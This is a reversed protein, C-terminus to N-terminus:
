KKEIVSIHSGKSRAQVEKDYMSEGFAPPVQYKGKNTAKMRYVFEKVSGEAVGFIVVRDERVDIYDPMFTSGSSGGRVSELVVEFGGPLLDVIAINSLHSSDTSRIKIHVLLEEGLAAENVVEGEENRFEHQVELRKKLVEPPLNKDFGSEVVQYFLNYKTKGEFSIKEAEASFPGRVFLGNTSELKRKNGDKLVEFIGLEVVDTESAVKAYTSLGLITYASSITNHQGKIIRDVLTLLKDGDIKKAVDPFHRSVLDIYKADSILSDFFYEYRKGREKGLEYHYVLKNAMGDKQLLKYTAALYVAMIDSKWKEKHNNDLYDTLSSIYNTTVEGNRTLIYIAYAMVRAEEFSAPTKRLSDKLFLLTGKLMDKPVPIGKERSETLFHAAYISLFNNSDGGTPWYRFGGGPNQRGRILDVTQKVYKNISKNDNFGFEPRGKLAIAPFGKSILQETCGYPFKNLYHLLGKSISLPLPSVSAELTRFAEYMDRKVEVDPLKKGYGTQIFTMYPTPPRVSLHVTFTAKKSRYTAQFRMKASGLMDTARLRYTLTEERQEAIVIDQAKESLISLHDSTEMSVKITPTEGSGEVNNAVSLTIDFEDGPAVFTPVNPSLVFDGRVITKSDSSGIADKAVAVAMVRLSGNFYDPVEYSVEKTLTDIDVLGSWFVVPKLRKRKFPNLNKGIGEADYMGGGTASLLKEMTIEPLILDLIQRTNVELAGKKFYHDLPKPTQYNAVQLIGEDVAFIIAKGPKKSKYSIKMTDGPKVLNPVDLDIGIDKKAKSVTFPVVAYSLPSMFIEESDMSRVFTVNVYGNGELSAPVSIRQISSNTATKFWKYTYVKDKEITILGSGQYPAKIFVEIEDGNNFDKKNLKIQLEANKELGRTLNAQGVISFRVKNLERGKNDIIKLAFDGPEDSPLTYSLGAEGIIIDQDSVPVEKMVSQYKYVGNKQKTLVSVHREEVIRATLEKAEVPKLDPNIAILHVSRQSGKNIYALDGDKKYGIIYNLPSVLISSQSTVSRGGGAEFGEAMFTLRFTSKEFRKLNFEFEADGNEDTEKGELREHFSKKKKAPDHFVYDRYSSFYPYVPRLEMTAEIQRKTAPTGFLNKLSVHGKLEQPSVWGETATKSFRTSIKMRDPLFEEIQVSTSGLLNGRRKDKVIYANVSYTGTPSYEETKFQFEEFATSSLAIKKKKIEQGKVDVVTLELPVGKLDKKWDPHKVILGINVEDGPRYIGRDSFLYANLKQRKGATYVGGTEFRSYNLGRDRREYPLFSMDDGKKAVYVTPEKERKFSRLDPLKAHGDSNTRVNVIPIGNKGLVEVQVGEIPKGDKISQIFIEKSGSINEKVVMGLDTILILRKDSRGTTRKRKPDWSEVKFFFLGQKEEKIYKTLNFSTYQAKQPGLHPLAKFEEYRETINDQNFKYHNFYPNKFDGGTQSILHNVEGSIVRAIEFKIGKIGRSLISLQKNGSMSLLAGDHMIKIERPYDPIRVITEYSNALIFGGYSELGKEIKAYM